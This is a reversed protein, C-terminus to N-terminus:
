LLTVFVSFFYIKLFKVTWFVRSVSYFGILSPFPAFRTPACHFGVSDSSIGALKSSIRRYAFSIDSEPERCLLCGLALATLSQENIKSFIALLKAPASHNDCYRQRKQENVGLHSLGKFRKKYEWGCFSREDKRFKRIATTESLREDSRVSYWTRPLLSM